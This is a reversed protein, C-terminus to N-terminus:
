SAANFRMRTRLWLGLLTGGIYAPLAPFSNLRAGLLDEDAYYGAAWFLLCVGVGLVPVGLTVAATLLTRRDLM